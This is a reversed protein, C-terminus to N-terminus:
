SDSSEVVDDREDEGFDDESASERRLAWEELPLSLLLLPERSSVDVLAGVLIALALDDLEFLHLLIRDSDDVLLPMELLVLLAQLSVLPVGNVMSCFLRALMDCADDDEDEDEEEM